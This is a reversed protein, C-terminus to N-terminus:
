ADMKILRLLWATGGVFLAGGVLLMVLGRPDTFLPMVYSRRYALMFASLAVPVAILVWASLRGEASLTRVQQRLRERERMTDVSTQLVEALNGGVDRQIRVAMVAWGLDESGTREALRDLADSLDAGLRHEAVARGFEAALPEPAERVLSEIAQSLSFGSRLSGIVLQLGDPLQETFLRERRSTMFMLYAMSALWGAVLGLVVGVLGLALGGLLAVGIAALVRVLLWEHPRIRLGARELKLAIRDELQGSRVVSASANLMTRTLREVSTTPATPEPKPALALRSPGFHAIQKLRDRNEPTPWAIAAVFVIVALFLCVAVVIILWGPVWGLPSTALPIAGGDFKAFVVTTSVPTFGPAEVTFVGSQGSLASPVSATVALTPAFLRGAEQALSVVSAADDASRLTGGAGDAILRLATLGTGSAGWEVIDLGIGTNAVATGVRTHYESAFAREGDSIVLLRQEVANGATALARRAADVGDVPDWGSGPTVAALAQDFAARDTTPALAETPGDQGIIFLGLQVDVPVAGALSGAAARAAQLYAESSSEHVDLVVTLMRPPAGTLDTATVTRTSVEAEGIRVRVSAPDLTSGAPLFTPTLLARVQGPEATVASVVLASPPAAFVPAPWALALASVLAAVALARVRSM